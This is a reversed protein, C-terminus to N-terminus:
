KCALADFVDDTLFWDPLEDILSSYVYTTFWVPIGFDVGGTIRAPPTKTILRRSDKEQM